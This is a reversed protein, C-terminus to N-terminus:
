GKKQPVPPRGAGLLMWLGWGACKMILPRPMEDGNGLPHRPRRGPGAHCLSGRCGGPGPRCWEGKEGTRGRDGQMFVTLEGSSPDQSKGKIEAVWM